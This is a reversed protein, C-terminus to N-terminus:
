SWIGKLLRTLGLFGSLESRPPTTGKLPTVRAKGCVLRVFFRDPEDPAVKELLWRIYIACAYAELSGDAFGILKPAGVTGEPKVARDLVIEGLNLFFALLDEWSKHEDDTIPDDWGLNSEPGYLSRLQLKLKITLPCILGM